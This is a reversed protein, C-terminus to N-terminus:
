GGITISFSIWGTTPYDQVEIVTYGGGGIAQYSRTTTNEQNVIPYGSLASNATAYNVGRYEKVILERKRYQEKTEDEPDTRRESYRDESVTVPTPLSTLWAM